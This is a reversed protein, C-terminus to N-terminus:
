PWPSSPEYNSTHCNNTSTGLGGIASEFAAVAAAESHAAEIYRRARVAIEERREPSNILAHIDAIAGDVSSSITGLRLREIVHNPDIKLSVVPTGSSWAELFINPFGEGESTCLLVSANAITEHAKEPAVQGRYDVNPLTRLADAIQNGYHKPSRHDSPEGCVVFHLNQAKQAIEVLLDPRKPQRLMGVWTVYRQREKHPIIISSAHIMSPVITAKSRLESLLNSLQGNHQVFIRDTNSLGWSYLPWWRQREPLARRPQVDTDFGAAFITRVGLLKAISVAPGWLHSACRWYWWDPLESRLFRYLSLLRQYPAFLTGNVPISVFHVGDITTRSGFDFVGQLGVTVSWGADALARALLWQQREAGGVALSNGSAYEYAGNSTNFFVIKMPEPLTPWQGHSFSLHIGCSATL